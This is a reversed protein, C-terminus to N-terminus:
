LVINESLVSSVAEKAAEAVTSASEVIAGTSSLEGKLQQVAAANIDFVRVTDTPTLKSQLNKAMQFGMQGLGIFGYRDLRAPSSSFMRRAM